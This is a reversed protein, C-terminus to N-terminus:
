EITDGGYDLEGSSLKEEEWEDFNQDITEQEGDILLQSITEAKERQEPTESM